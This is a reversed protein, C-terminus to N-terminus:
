AFFPLLYGPQSVGHAFAGPCFFVPDPSATRVLFTLFLVKPCLGGLSESDMKFHPHRAVSSQDFSLFVKQPFRRGLVSYFVSKM